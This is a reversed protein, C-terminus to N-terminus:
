PKYDITRQGEKKWGIIGDRLHSVNTFGLQEIIANGLRTTRNGTRCYLLVPTQKTSVVSNFKQLFDPHVNGDKQFATITNAGDIIGTELWEGERRIDIIAVGSSRAKILDEPTSQGLVVADAVSLLEIDFLLTANPPIADGAGNKGYALNPPITLRRQEGVKMGAVGLEWGEIVQGAGITFSFPQGRPKSADFITGDELRGEYHVTVKRNKEAQSGAGEVLTEVKLESAFAPLCALLSAIAIAKNIWRLM